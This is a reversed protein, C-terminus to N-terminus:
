FVGVVNNISLLDGILVVGMIFGIMNVGVIVEYPREDGIADDFWFIKWRFILNLVNECTM